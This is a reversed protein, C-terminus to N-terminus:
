RRRPMLVLLRVIEGAKAAPLEIVAGGALFPITVTTRVRRQDAGAATAAEIEVSLIGTEPDLRPTLALSVEIDAVTSVSELTSGLAVITSTQWLVDADASYMLARGLDRNALDYRRTLQAFESRSIDLIAANVIVESPNTERLRMLVNRIARHTRPAATVIIQGGRESIKARVGGYRQWAEPDVHDAILLMLEEGPTRPERIPAEDDIPGEAGDPSEEDGGSGDHESSEQDARRGPAEERLREFTRPDAILDRVDYIATARMTSAGAYTTLVVRGAHVDFTPREFEDGLQLVLAGIATLISTDELRITVLDRERVGLRGLANWDARIPVPSRRNLDDIMTKLREDEYTATVPVSDLAELLALSRDLDDDAAFGIAAALVCSALVSV